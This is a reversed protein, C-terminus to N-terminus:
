SLGGELSPHVPCVPELSKVWFGVWTVESRGRLPLALLDLRMPSDGLTVALMHAALRVGFDPITGQRGPCECGLVPAGPPLGHGRQEGAGGGRDLM